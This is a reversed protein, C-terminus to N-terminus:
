QRSPYGYASSMSAYHGMTGGRNLWDTSRGSSGYSAGSIAVVPRTNALRQYSSLNSDSVRAVPALKAFRNVGAMNYNFSTAYDYAPPSDMGNSDLSGTEYNTSM